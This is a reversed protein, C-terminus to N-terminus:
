HGEDRGIKEYHYGRLKPYLWLDCPTLDPSYPPHPVTKIGMKSLYDTALFSNHVAANDQHFHWQGLKFLAPRKRRFRKRFQM